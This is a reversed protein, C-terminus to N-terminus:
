VSCFMHRRKLVRQRIQRLYMSTQPTFKLRGDKVQGTKKFKELWPTIRQNPGLNQTPFHTTAESFLFFSRLHVGGGALILGRRLHPNRVSFGQTVM